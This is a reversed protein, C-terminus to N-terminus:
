MEGKRVLLAVNQGGFGFSNSLAVNFNHARARNPVYDLDCEPDPTELNITPPLIQERLALITAIMEIVGAAAVAHGTMSKISSIPICPAFTGFVKHLARTEARDNELTSTGHANVYGVDKPEIGADNLASEIAAVAGRAEPHMDTVRYADSSAGYGIIEAFIRTGRRRAHEYDELVLMGAGEGLVFGDRNLDFPRSVKEPEDGNKSLASLMAFGLVDLPATMTHTGGALAIECEGTQIRRTAEGIAQSSAACATLSTMVEGCIGYDAAIASAPITAEMLQDRLAFEEIHLSSFLKAEDCLTETSLYPALLKSLLEVSNQGEGAGLYLNADTLVNENWQAHELAQAAAALAFNTRRDFPTSLRENFKYFKSNKGNTFCDRVEAAIRVPLGNANYQSITKVGSVGNVLSQWFKEISCGLSSVIGMGTVAVRRKM